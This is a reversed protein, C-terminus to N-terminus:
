VKIAPNLTSALPAESNHWKSMLETFAGSRGSPVDVCFCAANGLMTPVSVLEPLIRTFEGLPPKGDVSQIQPFQWTSLFPLSCKAFSDHNYVLSPFFFFPLHDIKLLNEFSFFFVQSSINSTSWKTEIFRWVPSPLVDCPFVGNFLCLSLAVTYSSRWALIFARGLIRSSICYFCRRCWLLRTNNAATNNNAVPLHQGVWQCSIEGLHTIFVVRILM